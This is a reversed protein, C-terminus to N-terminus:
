KINYKQYYENLERESIEVMDLANDITDKDWNEPIDFGMFDSLAEYGRNFLEKKLEEFKM